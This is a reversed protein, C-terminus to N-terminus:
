KSLRVFNKAPYLNTNLLIKSRETSDEETSDEKRIHSEIVFFQLFIFIFIFFSSDSHDM